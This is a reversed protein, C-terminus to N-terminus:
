DPQTDFRQAWTFSFCAEHLGRRGKDRDFSRSGVAMGARAEDANPCSERMARAARDVAPSGEFRCTAAARLVEGYAKAAEECDAAAPTALVLGIAALRIM